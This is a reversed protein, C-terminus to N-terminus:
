ERRLLSFLIVTIALTIIAGIGALFIFSGANSPQAQLVYTGSVAVIPFATTLLRPKTEVTITDISFSGAPVDEPVYTEIAVMTGKTFMTTFGSRTQCQIAVNVAFAGPPLITPQFECFAYSPGLIAKMNWQQISIPRDLSNVGTVVAYEYGPTILTSQMAVTRSEKVVEALVCPVVFLALLLVALKKM